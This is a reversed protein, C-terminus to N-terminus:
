HLVAGFAMERDADIKSELGMNGFSWGTTGKESYQWFKFEADAFQLWRRGGSLRVRM